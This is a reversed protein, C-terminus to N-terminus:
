SGIKQCIIRDYGRADPAGWWNPNPELLIETDDASIICYPGYSFGSNVGERSLILTELHQMVMSATAPEELILILIRDSEKVLGLDDITYSEGPTRCIGVFESQYYSSETGDMLYNTYLYAASVFGEDLGGPMAYDRLRTRDSIPKWGGDLGWFGDTDVFFEKYGAAFAQGLDSFGLTRLSVIDSGPKSKGSRIAEAGALFVWNESTEENEFLARISFICDDATIPTGDEWCADGRLSIRFAYGRQAKEPIGYTGAFDATVDEPLSAALVAEWSGDKAAAYLPATTLGAPIERLPYIATVIDPEPATPAETEAFVPQALLLATFFICLAKRIHLM